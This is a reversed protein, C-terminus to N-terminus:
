WYEGKHVTIEINEELNALDFNYKLEYDGAELCELRLYHYQQCDSKILKIRSFMNKLIKGNKKM